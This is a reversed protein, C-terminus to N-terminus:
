GAMVFAGFRLRNVRVGALRSVEQNSGVARLYRGLPTFSVVYAVIGVVVAGYWFGLPLGLVGYNVWGGFGEANMSVLQMDTLFLAVGLLFTSMGLTVVIPNIGLFVVVFGNIAGAFVGALVAVVCALWPDWGHSSVLVPVIVACLGLVSAISLDVFEGVLLTCFLALTLFVLYTQSGFITTFTGSSLFRSPEVVAFVGAM